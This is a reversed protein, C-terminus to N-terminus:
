KNFNVVQLRQWTTNHSPPKRLAGHEHQAEAHRGKSNCPRSEISYIHQNHQAHNLWTWIREVEKRYTMYRNVYQVWKPQKFSDMTYNDGTIKRWM